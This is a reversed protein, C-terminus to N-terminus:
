RALEEKVALGIKELTYPKKIYQGAGLRQAEKVRDTESFGSAIIAKQDPHLKLIREYAELGDIGPDMIMDLVLLDADADKLYDVAEEGSSVTKVSYGLRDIMKFALERQVEVDDVVLISEGNGMYDELSLSPKDTVTKERTVPFYLTFRTGKGERSEVDIYGKHDKVTGWVVAMGLGTGSRGMLKKTYFPEFIRELDEKSIGIGTDSVRVTVYDGEAIDDYGRVPRDIYRNETSIFIRGGEPMAEAANSFLNMVTKLLHVASGKINLLDKEFHTGVEIDPNFSKLKEFEPSKLQEIILTNLNVVESIAVGRRALTLLDQVITVAREGSNKMTLIPQRFPSNEPLDMLILEPYSVIGSLINNLDHAVGGALTGIAEMKHAQILKDELEKQETVDRANVVYGTISGDEELYPYHTVDMCRRGSNSFNVWAQYRVVEGSLCRDINPKQNKEFFAQGFIEPVSHDIIDERAKNMSKLYAGNVARYVYNRDIMAMHDNSAAVIREYQRLKDEAKKRDTIDLFMARTGTVKDGSSEDPIARLVTEIIHGDRTVLQREETFPGPLARRYGGKRLKSVSGPTYFDTIPRNLIQERSYGLSMVFLDNCDVIHPEGNHHRTIVYMVPAEEFLNRYREEAKQLAKEAQKRQTIDEGSSLTAIIEGKNNRLIANHWAIRKEKNDKTLIYNESYAETETSGEILKSFLAKTRERDREPLFNSFWNKGIVESYEYGLAECGKKNILSVTQDPNLSILIVGAIDLLKQLNDEESKKLATEMKDYTELILLVCAIVQRTYEKRREV